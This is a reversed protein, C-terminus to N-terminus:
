ICEEKEILSKRIFISFGKCPFCINMGLNGWTVKMKKEKKREERKYRIKM